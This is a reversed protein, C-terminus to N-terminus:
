MEMYIYHLHLTIYHLICIYITGYSTLIGSIGFCVVRIWMFSIPIFESTRHWRCYKKCDMFQCFHCYKSLPFGRLDLCTMQCHEARKILSKFLLVDLGMEELFIDRQEEPIVDRLSCCYTNWRFCDSNALMVAGNQRAFYVSTKSPKQM